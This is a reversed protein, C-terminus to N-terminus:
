HDTYRIDIKKKNFCLRKLTIVMLGPLKLGKFKNMKVM